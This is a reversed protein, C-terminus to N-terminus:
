FSYNLKIGFMRPVQAAQSTVGLAVDCYCGGDNQENKTVNTVYLTGNLGGVGNIDNWNLNLDLNYYSPNCDVVRVRGGDAVVAPYGEAATRFRDCVIGTNPDNPDTPVRPKAVNYQVDTWTLNGSLSVDGWKDDIPFHYTGRLTWKYKPTFSFPTSALSVPETVLPNTSIVRTSQWDTYRANTYAFLGGVELWDTPVITLDADIGSIKAKAANQTVVILTPAQGAAQAVRTVNAKVNDFWGYFYSANTRVLWDGVNFTAKTGAEINTLSDPDYKEFGVVNQTGGSSYGKAGTVFFMVDPTFQYQAGLTWSGNNWRGEGAPTGPGGTNSTVALTTPNLSWTERFATDWTHRYGATLSLGDLMAGLDINAQGYIARSRSSTKSVSATPLFDHGLTRGYNVRPHSVTQTHFTGVQLDVIDFLDNWIVQIEDSWSTDGKITDTNRPSGGDFIILRSGDTDGPTSFSRNGFRYGFINKITIDDTINWSIQNTLFHSRNWSFACSNGSGAGGLENACATSWGNFKYKGLALQEALVEGRLQDWEAATYPRGIAGIGSLQAQTGVISLPQDNNPGSTKTFNFDDLVYPSGVGWSKNLQYMTYIEINDTPRFTISPRLTYYNENAHDKNTTIDIVYGDRHHTIAAMRFLVKDEILPLDVAGEITRRGYNGAAVSGYGGFVEGPKRPSYVLAGGNSAEGFLTGQPGKLVQVNSIDFFNGFGSSSSPVDAFYTPTGNGIGRMFIFSTNGPSCCINLGGINKTLSWIDKIDQQELRDPTFAQIAIPVRQINEEVRRATVTIEELGVVAQAQQGQANAPLATFALALASTTSVLASRYSTSAM